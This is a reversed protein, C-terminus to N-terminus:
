LNKNLLTGTSKISSVPPVKDTNSNVWNILYKKVETLSGYTKETAKQEKIFLEVLFKAQALTIKNKMCLLEITTQNNEILDKEYKEIPFLPALGVYTQPNIKPLQDKDMYKGWVNLFTYSFESITILGANALETIEFTYLTYPIKEKPMVFPAIEGQTPEKDRWQNMLARIYLIQSRSHIKVPLDNIVQDLIWLNIYKLMSM